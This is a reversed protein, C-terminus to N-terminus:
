KGLAEPGTEIARLAASAATQIQTDDEKALSELAPIASAAAPGFRALADASALRTSSSRSHLAARLAEIADNSYASKPAIDGLARAIFTAASAQFNEPATAQVFAAILVPVTPAASAGFKALASSARSRRSESSSKMTEALAAIASEAATSMPAIEGLALAADVAPDTRREATLPEKLVELLSPIAATASPGIRALMLAAGARVDSSRDSLGQILIPIAKPSPRVRNVTLSTAFRLEADDLRLLQFLRPIIPDIGVRFGGIATVAAARFSISPDHLAALIAPPPAAPIRELVYDLMSFAARYTKPDRAMAVEVIANVVVQPELPAPASSGSVEARRRALAAETDALSRAASLRVMSSEDKLVRVLGSRAAVVLNDETGQEVSAPLLNGLSQAATSRVEPDSDRLVATLSPIAVDPEATARDGLRMAATVRDAAEHAQLSRASVRTASLNEWLSRASWALVAVCAVLAVCERVRLQWRRATTPKLDGYMASATM